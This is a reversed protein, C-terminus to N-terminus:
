EGGKLANRAIENKRDMDDILLILRLEGRLREIEALAALHESVSVRDDWDASDLLEERRHKIEEQTFKM